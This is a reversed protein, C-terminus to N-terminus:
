IVIPPALRHVQLKNTVFKEAVKWSLVGVAHIKQIVGASRICPDLILDEDKGIAVDGGPLFYGGVVSLKIKDALANATPTGLWQAHDSQEV